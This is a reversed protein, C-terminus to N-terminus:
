CPRFTSFVFWCERPFGDCPTYKNLCTSTAKFYGSQWGAAPLFMIMKLTQPPFFHRHIECLTSNKQTPTLYFYLGNMRKNSFTSNPLTFFTAGLETSLPVCSGVIAKSQWIDLSETDGRSLRGCCTM